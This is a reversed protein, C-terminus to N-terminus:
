SSGLWGPPGHSIAVWKNITHAHVYAHMWTGWPMHSSWLVVWLLWSEGCHPNQPDFEPWLAQYCTSKSDSWYKMSTKLLYIQTM